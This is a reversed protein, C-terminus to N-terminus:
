TKSASPTPVELERTVHWASQPPTLFYPPSRYALRDDYGYDKSYGTRCPDGPNCGATRGRFVQAISGIVHVTGDDDGCDYSDVTFVHSLSLIAAQITRDRAGASLSPTQNPTLDTTNSDCPYAGMKRQVRVFGTAVLGLLTDSGPQMYVNNTVVIDRATTITLNKGYNGQVFADGCAPAAANPNNPDHDAGCTGNNLVSIVGNAPLAVSTNTYTTGTSDRGTVTMNTNNLVITTPGLFTYKPLATSALSANSSPMPLMQYQGATYVKSTGTNPPTPGVSNTWDWYEVADTRGPRGFTTTQGNEPSRIDIGDDTHFPGSVADSGAYNITSCQYTHGAITKTRSDRGDRRYAACGAASGVWNGLGPMDTHEGQVLVPDQTEFQNAYAYDLFGKRRFTALVSRYLSGIKGTSRITITGSNPDLMTAASCPSSSPLEVAYKARPDNPATPDVPMTAWNTVSANLNLATGVTNCQTWSDNDAALQEVYTDIGTEAAAYARKADDNHRSLPLDGDVAAYAGFVALMAVMLVLVCVIVVFGDEERARILM